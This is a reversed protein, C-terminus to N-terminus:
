EEIGLERLRAALREARDREAVLDGEARDARLREAEARQAEAEARQSETEARQAEAEARLQEAEARLQEAEAREAQTAVWNGEGDYWRLWRGDSGGYVGSWVELGLGLAEFWFRENVLMVEEFRMGRMEFLQFKSQYRDFVAYYPVRLIQEYVQWKTPPRNVERLTKGLDEEATSPSLLEVVLFPAIGEQWMVYSLRLDTNTTGSTVGLAVFWDPRKYWGTHRLDYYLNLDSATFREETGYLPSLLTEDLLRPQSLHFLDPLGPDEPSESPLDDMTPLTESPPLPGDPGYDLRQYM